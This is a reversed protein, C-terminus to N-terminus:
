DRDHKWEKRDAMRWYWEIHADLLERKVRERAAASMRPVHRWRALRRFRAVIRILRYLIATM